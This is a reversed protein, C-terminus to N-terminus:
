GVHDLYRSEGSDRYLTQVERFYKEGDNLLQRQGRIRDLNHTLIRILQQDLDRIHAVQDAFQEPCEWRPIGAQEPTGEPLGEEPDFGNLKALIRERLRFTDQLGDMHDIKAQRIALETLEQLSDLMGATTENALSV